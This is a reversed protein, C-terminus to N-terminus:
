VKSRNQQQCLVRDELESVIGDLLVLLINGLLGDLKPARDAFLLSGDLLHAARVLDDETCPLWALAPADQPAYAKTKTTVGLKHRKTTCSM